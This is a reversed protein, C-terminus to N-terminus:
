DVNRLVELLLTVDPLFLKAKEYVLTAKNKNYDHATENRAAYYGIWAEANNIIKLRAAERFIDNKSRITTEDIQLLKLYRHMLKWALDMTYEFRQIVGDRMLDNNPHKSAEMFGTKLQLIAAELADVRLSEM